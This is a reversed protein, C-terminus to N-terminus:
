KTHWLALVRGTSREILIEAVGGDTNEDPLTGQIHWIDEAEDLSIRYPTQAKVQEGYHAAFVETAKRIAEDATSVQGVNEDSPFKEMMKLLYESEQLVFNEVKPETDVTVQQEDKETCSVFLLCSLILVLFLAFSRKM